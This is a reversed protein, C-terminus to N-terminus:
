VLLITPLTLHTYSVSYLAYIYKDNCTADIFGLRTKNAILGISSKYVQYEIDWGEGIMTTIRETNAKNLPLKEYIPAYRMFNFVIDGLGRQLNGGQFFAQNVIVSDLNDHMEISLSENLGEYIKKVTDYKVITYPQSGRSYGVLSQDILFVKSAKSEFPNEFRDILELEENERHSNSYVLVDMTRADVGVFRENDISNIGM